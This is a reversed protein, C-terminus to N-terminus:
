GAVAHSLHEVSLDSLVNWHKAEPTSNHKLWRREAESMDERCFTLERLLVSGHLSKEVALLRNAVGTNKMKEALSRALTLVFGLRNQADHMKTQTVIWGWDMNSYALALWPLAEATRSELYNSTLAALLIEVPNWTAHAQMYAFGPYGLAALQQALKPGDLRDWSKQGRMPLALPSLSDYVTLLRQVRSKPVQRKGKELLSLYTQSLGLRSAAEQQTWGKAKRAQRLEAPTM